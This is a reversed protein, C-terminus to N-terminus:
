CSAGPDVVHHPPDYFDYFNKKEYGLDNPINPFMRAKFHSEERLVETREDGSFLTAVLCTDFTGLDVTLHAELGGFRCVRIAILVLM